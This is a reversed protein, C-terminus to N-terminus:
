ALRLAEEANEVGAARESSDQTAKFWALGGAMHLAPLARGQVELEAAGEDATEAIRSFAESLAADTAEGLPTHYVKVQELARLRYDVGGDVQLVDM